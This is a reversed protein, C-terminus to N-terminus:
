RTGCSCRCCGGHPPEGADTLGAPAHDPDPLPATLKGGLVETVALVPDTQGTRIVRVGRGAMKAIFGDGSGATVLVEVGDIPHAGGAFHHFAMGPELDLRAVETVQGGVDTDFVIFRHAKGAHGTVTRFDQSTVAVKM